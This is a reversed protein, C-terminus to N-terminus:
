LGIVELIRGLVVDSNFHQEALRRAAHCQAVYDANITQMGAIAEEPTTFTLLGSGTPLTGEFGTSQVLAPKGSALYCATRDSVWGSNSKVYGSKAVSFEARSYQIFERYSHPDGAVAYPDRIRWQHQDLLGLDEFDQPGICLAVEVRQNAEQPAHLVRLFEERKGGYAAGNFTAEQSGRWDAITSFRQCGEDLHFPWADLAVPPLIPQWDVGRTPITFAPRGVNQGTTFFFNYRDFGMDWEHAWMQTFGPDIDVYARRPIRMLPSDPQLHGSICLVLDAEHAARLLRAQGMGAYREGQNYVVCYREHFGFDRATRDFQDLLYDVSHPAKLPNVPPLLDVWVSEIGLREFGLLYQLSVWTNGAFEPCGSTDKTAVIVKRM